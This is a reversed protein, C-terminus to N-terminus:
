NRGTGLFRHVEAMILSTAGAGDRVYERAVRSEATMKQPDNLLARTEAILEKSNRVEHGFGLELMQSPEVFNLHKPGFFLPLGYAAAELSNHIGTGFAGGIYAINGLRYLRSLLGINDIIAFRFAQPEAPKESYLFTQHKGFLDKVRLVNQRSIDHPAIIMKLDPLATALDRLLKEDPAWTSGGILLPRYRAFQELLPDHFEENSNQMVKEFRTDGVKKVRSIGANKLVAVSAEDQTLIVQIKRLIPLFFDRHPWQFYFQEPRFIAPALILPMGARQLERFYNAWIEYKIFIAMDPQCIQVFKRANGPTDAPLYFIHDALDHRKFHKMGSPSFFTLLIQRDPYDKKIAEMVPVAQEAEGLSAAHFWIVRPQHAFTRQLEPWIESRGEVWARAKPNFPAALRVATKYLGIGLNYLRGYIM